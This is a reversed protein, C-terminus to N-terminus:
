IFQIEKYNSICIDAESLDQKGSCPNHYGVCTIGGSKAALVGNRSDEIVIASKPSVGMDKCTKLFIDPHPKGKRVEEGSVIINFDNILGIKKLIIEILKKPSSSAVALKFNCNKAMNILNDVGDIPRLTENQLFAKYLSEYHLSILEEISLNVGYKIKISRWMEIQSMGVYVEQQTSDVDISLSKFTRKECEFHIPESNVLVGDMDFIILEYNDSTISHM